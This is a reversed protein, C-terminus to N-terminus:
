QRKRKAPAVGSGSGRSRDGAGAVEAKERIDHRLDLLVVNFGYRAGLEDLVRELAHQRPEIRM